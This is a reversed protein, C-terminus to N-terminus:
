GGGAVRYVTFESNHFVSTLAGPRAAGYRAWQEEDRPFDRSTIVFAAHIQALYAKREDIGSAPSVAATSHRTLLALLRPKAFVFVEGTKARDTLFRCAAQFAPDAIGERIPGFDARLYTGAYAVAVLAMALGAVAARLRRSALSVIAECAYLLWVPLLPLLYRADEDPPLIVM